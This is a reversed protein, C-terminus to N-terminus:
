RSSFARALHFRETQGFRLFFGQFFPSDEDENVFAAEALFGVPHAGPSGASFGRNQLKIEVPFLKRDDPADGQPVEIKFEKRTRDLTGLNDLKQLVQLSLQRAFQQDEPISGNDMATPEHALVEITELSTDVGGGQRGVRGFEIRDFVNPTVEFLVAQGVEAGFVDGLQTGESSFREGVHAASGPENRGEPFLSFQPSINM